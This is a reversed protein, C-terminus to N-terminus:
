SILSANCLEAVIDKVDDNCLTNILSIKKGVGNFSTGTYFGNKRNAIWFRDHFDVSYKIDMTKDIKAAVKNISAKRCNRKDTIIIITKAESSNLISALMECYEDQESSFIYPDVIILEADKAGIKVLNASFKGAKEESTMNKWLVDETVYELNEGQMYREIKLNVESNLVRKCFEINIGLDKLSKNGLEEIPLKMYESLVFKLAGDFNGIIEDNISFADLPTGIVDYFVSNLGIESLCLEDNLKKFFFSQVEAFSITCLEKRPSSIAEGEKYESVTCEQQLPVYNDKNFRFYLM